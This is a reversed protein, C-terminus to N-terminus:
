YEYPNKPEPIPTINQAQVVLSRQNNLMETQMKGQVRFWQDQPYRQRSESLKVPLGIPYVDAACCTIVFRTLTLYQDQLNEPHVAFGEINVPQGQYAEPEPYVDVTRIWDILSRDQPPKGASFSQPKVRTVISADQLGRQIATESAFPRPTIGLGVLASVILVIAMMRPPFLTIHRVTPGPKGRLLRWSNLGAIGLLVVGAAISLGFYNPHILLGLRGSIWYRLFLIGWATFAITDLWDPWQQRFLTRLSKM